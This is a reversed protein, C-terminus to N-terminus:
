KETTEDMTVTAVEREPMAVIKRAIAELQEDDRHGHGAAAEPKFSAFLELL